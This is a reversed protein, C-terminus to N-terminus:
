PETVTFLVPIGMEGHHSSSSNTIAVAYLVRGGIKPPPELGFKADGWLCPPRNIYGKEDFRSLKGQGFVSRQDCLLEGTDNYYIQISICTGSHCHSKLAVLYTNEEPILQTGALRHTCDATATGAPCQPVDYEGVDAGLFWAFHVPEKQATYDQFWFRFKHQYVLPRDQWPVTQDKDLLRWGDLCTQIGGTYTRLDCTPNRQTLVQGKCLNKFAVSSGDEYVFKGGGQGFAPPDKACVCNPAGVALLTLTAEAAAKHIALQVTNGVAAIFNLTTQNLSFSFHAGQLSRTLVVTRVGATVTNSLVHVSLPLQAGPEHNGLKRETVRGAGDVIVTWPADAMARANFGVGFWAGDPGTLEFTANPSAQDLSLQLDVLSKARGVLATRGRGCLSSSARPTHTNFSATLRRGGTDVAFSCGSPLSANSVTVASTTFGPLALQAVVAACEAESGVEDTCAAHLQVYHEADLQKTVRSTMPCELLGSYPAHPKAYSNRPLPGAVFDTPGTVNMADRNWTDIQMATISFNAPSMVPRAYGPAFGKFSLRAEGGNQSFFAQSNPVHSSPNRDVVVLATGDRDVAPGHGSSPVRPDSADVRILEADAGLLNTGYHHNYAVSMPVSVDGQPTRRVQDWELGVVAMPKGAFRKVIAPPLPVMDLTKWFVEGYTSQIPPSYVDFFETKANPYEAFNIPFLGPVQKPTNTLAYLGNMNPSQAGVVAPALLALLVAM